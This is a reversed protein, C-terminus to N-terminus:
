WWCYETCFTGVVGECGRGARLCQMGLSVVDLWFRGELHFWGLCSRRGRGGHDDQLLGEQAGEICYAIHRPGIGDPSVGAKGRDLMSPPLDGDLVPFLYLACEILHDLLSHDHRDGLRGLPYRVESIGALRITGQVYTKVRLVQVLGCHLLMVFGWGLHSQRLPAVHKLLSSALPPQQLMRKSSFDEYRLMKLMCQPLYLNRHMGNLSFIGWSIKWICISWAVSGKGPMIVMWSSIHM